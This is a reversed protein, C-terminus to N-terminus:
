KGVWLGELNFQPLAKRAEMAEFRHWEAEETRGRSEAIDMRERSVNYVFEADSQQAKMIARQLELVRRSDDSNRADLLDTRLDLVQKRLRHLDDGTVFDGQRQQNDQQSNSFGREEFVEKSNEPIEEPLDGWEDNNYSSSTFSM